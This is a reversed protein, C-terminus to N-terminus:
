KKDVPGFVASGSLTTEGGVALAGIAPTPRSSPPVDPPKPVAKAFYIRGRDCARCLIVQGHCRACFFLRASLRM